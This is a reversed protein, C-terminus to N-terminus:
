QLELSAPGRPHELYRSTEGHFYIINLEENILVAAPAYRKLLLREAEKQGREAEILVPNEALVM